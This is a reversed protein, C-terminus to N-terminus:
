LQTDVRIDFWTKIDKIQVHCVYQQLDPIANGRLERVSYTTPQTVLLVNPTDEKGSIV